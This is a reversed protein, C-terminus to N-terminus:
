ETRIGHISQIGRQLLSWDFGIVLARYGREIMAKAQEATTAVGGLIVPSNRIAGELASIAAAVDPHDTQRQPGYLNHSRRARHVLPRSRSGFRNESISKLPDIHEITGIALM